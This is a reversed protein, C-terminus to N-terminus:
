HSFRVPDNNDNTCDCDYLMAISYSLEDTIYLAVNITTNWELEM